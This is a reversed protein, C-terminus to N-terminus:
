VAADQRRSLKNDRTTDHHYRSISISGEVWAKCAALPDAANGIAFYKRITPTFMERAEDVSWGLHAAINEDTLVVEVNNKIREIFSLPNDIHHRIAHKRAGPTLMRLFGKQEEESLQQESLWGSIITGDVWEQAFRPGRSSILKAVIARDTACNLIDFGGDTSSAAMVAAATEIVLWKNEDEANRIMPSLGRRSRVVEWQTFVEQVVESVIKKTREDRFAFISDQGENAATDHEDLVTDVIHPLAEIRDVLEPKRRGKRVTDRCLGSISLHSETSDFSVEGAFLAEYREERQEVAGTATDDKPIGVMHHTADPAEFFAAPTPSM